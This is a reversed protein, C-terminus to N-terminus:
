GGAKGVRGGTEPFDGHFSGIIWCRAATRCVSRLGTVSALGQPPRPWRLVFSLQNERKNRDNEANTHLPWVERPILLGRVGRAPEVPGAVEEVRQRQKQTQEKMSQERYQLFGARGSRSQDRCRWMKFLKSVTQSVANTMAWCAPRRLPHFFVFAAPCQFAHFGARKCGKNWGTLTPELDAPPSM